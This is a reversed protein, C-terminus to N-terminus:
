IFLNKFVFHQFQTLWPYSLLCQYHLCAYELIYVVQEIIKYKQLGRESTETKFSNSICKKTELCQSNLM